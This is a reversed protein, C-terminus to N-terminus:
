PLHVQVELWNNPVNRRNQRHIIVDSISVSGDPQLRRSHASGASRECDHKKCDNKQRCPHNCVVERESLHCKKIMEHNCKQLTIRDDSTCKQSEISECCKKVGDHGCDPFIFKDTSQCNDHSHNPRMKGPLQAQQMEDDQSLARVSSATPISMASRKGTHGCKAQVFTVRYECSLDDVEEWCRKHFPSSWMWSIKRGGNKASTTGHKPSCSKDCNHVKCPM